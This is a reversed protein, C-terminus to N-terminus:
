SIQTAYECNEICVVTGKIGDIEVTTEYSQEEYKSVVVQGYFNGEEPYVNILTSTWGSTQVHGNVFNISKGEADKQSIIIKNPFDCKTIDEEITGDACIFEYNKGPEPIVAGGVTGDACMYLTQSNSCGALILLAVVM